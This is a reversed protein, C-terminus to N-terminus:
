RSKVLRKKRSLLVHGSAEDDYTKPASDAETAPESDKERASSTKLFSLSLDPKTSPAITLHHTTLIPSEILIEQNPTAKQESVPEAGAVMASPMEEGDNARDEPRVYGVLYDRMYGRMYQQREPRMWRKRDAEGCSRCHYKQHANRAGVIFTHECGPAQCKRLLM